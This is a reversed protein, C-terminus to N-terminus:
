RQLWMALPYALALLPLSLWQMPVHRLWRVRSPANEWYGAVWIPWTYLYPVGFLLVFGIMGLLLAPLSLIASRSSRLATAALPAHYLQVRDGVHCKSASLVGPRPRLLYVKKDVTIRVLPQEIASIVNCDVIEATVPVDSRADYQDWVHCGIGMVMSLFGLRFLKRSYPRLAEWDRDSAVGFFHAMVM